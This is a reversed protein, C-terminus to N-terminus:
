VTLELDISTNLIRRVRKLIKEVAHKKMGLKNAIYEPKETVGDYIGYRMVFIQWEVDSLKTNIADMVTPSFIFKIGDEHTPDMRLNLPRVDNNQGKGDSDQNETYYLSETKMAAKALRKREDSHNGLNFQIDRLTHAPIHISHSHHYLNQMEAIIRTHAYTLLAQNTIVKDNTPNISTRNLDFKQIAVMLGIKGEQVLDEYEVIKGFKNFEKAALKQIYPTHYQVLADLAKQNGEEQYQRILERELERSLVNKAKTM